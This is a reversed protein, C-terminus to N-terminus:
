ITERIPALYVSEKLTGDDSTAHLRGDRMVWRNDLSLNVNANQRDEIVLLGDRDIEWYLTEIDPTDYEDSSHVRLEVTGDRMFTMRIDIHDFISSLLGAVGDMIASSFANDQQDAEKRLEDSVEIHLKWEGELTRPTLRNQADACAPLLTTTSLALFLALMPLRSVSPNM